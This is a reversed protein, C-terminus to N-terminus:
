KHFILVKINLFGKGWQILYNNKINHKFFNRVFITFDRQKEGGGLYM